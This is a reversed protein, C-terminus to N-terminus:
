LMNAFECVNRAAHALMTLSAWAVAGAFTQM